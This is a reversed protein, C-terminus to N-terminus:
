KAEERKHTFAIVFCAAICIVCAIRGAPSVGGAQRLPCGGALVAAFGVAYMGLINWLHQSHAIIGPTDFALVFRGTAVNFVLMVVFIAAIVTFLDFNKM